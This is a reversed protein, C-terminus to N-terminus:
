RSPQKHKAWWKKWEPQSRLFVLDEDKEIHDFNKYGEDIATELNIFAKKSKKMKSYACAINYYVLYPRDYNLRLANQYANVADKLRSINSLSNGYRYYTEATPYSSLAHEYLIIAMSDDHSQYYYFGEESAMDAEAIQLNEQQLSKLWAAKKVYLPKLQDILIDPNKMEDSNLFGEDFFELKTLNDMNVKIFDKLEEKYGGLVYMGIIYDATSLDPEIKFSQIAEDIEWKILQQTYQYSPVYKNNKRIFAAWLPSNFRVQGGLATIGYLELHGNNDFDQYGYGDLNDFFLVEYKGNVVEIIALRCPSSAFGFEQM